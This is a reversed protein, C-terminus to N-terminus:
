KPSKEEEKDAVDFDGSKFRQFWFKSEAASLARDGYAHVLLRRSEAATKDLNFCFLLATRMHEENPVYTSKSSVLFSNRHQKFSPTINLM